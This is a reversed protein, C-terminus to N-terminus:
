FCGEGHKILYACASLQNTIKLYAIKDLVYQKCGRDNRACRQVTNYYWNYVIDEDSQCATLALGLCCAILM